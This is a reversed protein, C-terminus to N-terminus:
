KVVSLDLAVYVSDHEVKVAFTRLNVCVPPSIARGSRIDFMGAHRPCEVTYGDIYGDSLYAHEHTCVNDTVFFEDHHSRFIAFSRGGFDWRKVDDKSVESVGCARTWTNETM